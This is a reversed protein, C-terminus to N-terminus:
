KLACLGPVSRTIALTPMLKNFDLSDTEIRLRVEYEEGEKAHFTGFGQDIPVGYGKRALDAPPPYSNGRAVVKNAQWVEWELRARQYGEPCAAGPPIPRGMVCRVATLSVIDPDTRFYLRITYDGTTQPVFAPFSYEGPRFVVPARLPEDTWATM